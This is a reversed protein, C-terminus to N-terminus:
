LNLYYKFLKFDGGPTTKCHQTRKLELNVFADYKSLHRNYNM